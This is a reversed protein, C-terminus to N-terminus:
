ACGKTNQACSFLPADPAIIDKMKEYPISIEQAGYVYPAVQYEPFTILIGDSELNWHKFNKAIPKTGETIMWKDELKATLKESAYSAMFKLFNAKPKFLDALELVKGNTLDFNLVSYKHYPHARGAQSGEYSYRVSIDTQNAPKVVAIDYDISLSNHKVDDPLTQMHPMDAIVYKKFQQVEENAMDSAAKNFLQASAPLDSGVIQPYNVDIKYHLEQNADHITKPVIKLQDTIAVSESEPGPTQTGWEAFIPNSILLLMLSFTLKKIM